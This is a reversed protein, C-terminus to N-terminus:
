SRTEEELSPANARLYTIRLGPVRAAAHAMAARHWGASWEGDPNEALYDEDTEYTTVWQEHDFADAQAERVAEVVQDVFRDFRRELHALQEAQSDPIPQDLHEWRRITRATVQLLHAVWESSLGMRERSSRFEAATMAASDRLMPQDSM